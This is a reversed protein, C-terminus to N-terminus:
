FLVCLFTDIQREALHMSIAMMMMLIIIYLKTEGQGRVYRPGDKGM